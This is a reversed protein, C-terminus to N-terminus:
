RLYRGEKKDNGYDALKTKLPARVALAFNSLVNKRQEITFLSQSYGRFTRYSLKLIKFTQHCEKFKKFSLNQSAAQSNYGKSKVHDFKQELAKERVKEPHAFFDDYVMLRYDM